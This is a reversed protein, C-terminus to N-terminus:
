LTRQNEIFPSVLILADQLAKTKTKIPVWCCLFRLPEKTHDLFFAICLKRFPEKDIFGLVSCGSPSRTPIRLPEKTHDEQLFGLVSCEYFTRQNIRISSGLFLADPLCKETTETTHAWYCLIRRHSKRSSVGICLTRQDIRIPSGLFM